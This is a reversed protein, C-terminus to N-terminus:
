QDAILQPSVPELGVEDRVVFVQMVLAVVDYYVVLPVVAPGGVVTSAHTRECETSLDASIANYGRHM